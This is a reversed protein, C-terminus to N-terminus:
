PRSAITIPRAIVVGIVGPGVHAGVVASVPSCHLARLQPLARKLDQALAQARDIGALHHVAVDVPGDGAAAIALERLRALAKTSTRVKELLAIEGDVVHLLPKTSLATGVLAAAKGIRGGRRLHELDDVYFLTTTRSATAQAAAVVEDVSRGAAAAEAAAVAAFGVGMGVTAADVVHVRPGERQPDAALRRAAEVTGSLRSSLHVSVVDDAACSQWAALLSAPTPQSTSAPAGATLRAALADSPLDVGEQWATGDLVVQLPVVRLGHRAALEGPLCATSDTVVATLPM